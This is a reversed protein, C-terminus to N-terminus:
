SLPRRTNSRNASSAAGHAVPRQDRDHGVVEGVVPHRPPRVAAVADRRGVELREATRSRTRRDDGGTLFALGFCEELREVAQHQHAAAVDVRGGVSGIGVGLVEVADFAVPVRELDPQHVGGVSQVDGGEADAPPHLDHVDREAARQVLVQGVHVAEERVADRDLVGLGQVRHRGLRPGQQRGGRFRAWERARRMVMLPDIADTLVEDHAPAAGVAQDFRDLHRHGVHVRRAHGLGLDRPHEPHLPMRLLRRGGIGRLLRQEIRDGQEGSM